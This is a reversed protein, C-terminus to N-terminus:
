RERNDDYAEWFVADDVAWALAATILMLCVFSILGPGLIVDAQERMKIVSVIVGMMFVELMSWHRVHHNIRLLLPTHRWNQKIMVTSIFTIALNILPAFVIMATVIMATTRHGSDYLAFPSGGLSSTHAKGLLHLELMPLVMAPFYIILGFASLWYARQLGDKHAEVLLKNCRPCHADAGSLEMPLTLLLDCDPCATLQGPEPM